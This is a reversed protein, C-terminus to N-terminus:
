VQARWGSRPVQPKVHEAMTQIFRDALQEATLTNGADHARIENGQIVLQIDNRETDQYWYRIRNEGPTYWLNMKTMEPGHKVSRREIQIHCNHEFETSSVPETSSVSAFGFLEEGDLQQLARANVVVRDTFRKWFEPGNAEISASAEQRKQEAKEENREKIWDPKNDDPQDTMDPEQSINV